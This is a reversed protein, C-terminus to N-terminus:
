LQFHKSADAIEIGVIKGDRDLDIFVAPGHVTTADITRAVIGEREAEGIYIYAMDAEADIELLLNGKTIM